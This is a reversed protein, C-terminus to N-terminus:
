DLEEVGMGDYESESESRGTLSDHVAYLARLWMDLMSELGEAGRDALQDRLREYAEIMVWVQLASTESSNRGPRNALASSLDRTLLDLCIQLSLNDAAPPSPSPFPGYDDFNSHLPPSLPEPSFSVPKFYVREEEFSVLTGDDSIPSSGLQPHPPQQHLTHSPAHIPTAVNLEDSSQQRRITDAADQGHRSPPPESHSDSYASARSELLARYQEAILEVSSTKALANAPRPITDLQGISFIPTKARRRMTVAPKQSAPTARPKQQQRQQQQQQRRHQVDSVALHYFEPIINVPSALSNTSKSDQYHLCGNGRFLESWKSDSGDPGPLPVSPLCPQAQAPGRNAADGKNDRLGENSAGLGLRRAGSSRQKMVTKQLKRRLKPVQSKLVVQPPTVLSPGKTQAM